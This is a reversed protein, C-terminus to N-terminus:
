QSQIFQLFLGGDAVIQEGARLGATIQYQDGARYGLTVHARGYSGDRQVVYVFPLNEDDHLVAAVPALLGRTVAHSQILVRVYQQKKLVNAPNDATVRVMVSRTNPDVQTSINTVKGSVPRSDAGTMVQAGDGLNVDDLDAGFVQAMVWVRSLDAITLAQTTGAQLLQGPTILREVVTGAIPARIIGGNHSVPEGRQISRITAPDVNLSALTQLAAARNAEATVADTEAQAAEREAVGQLAVRDKEM